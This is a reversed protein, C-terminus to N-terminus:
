AKRADFYALVAPWDHVRTVNRPLEAMTQNWGYNGFLLTSIGLDAAALCHKLQDDIVYSVNNQAFLDAKTRLMMESRVPEDFIGAFKIDEFLGPYHAAIWDRTLREISRRRSTIALLRYDVKLHTLVPLAEDNHRYHAIAGSAHLEVARREVEEIDVKWVKAWHEDYDEPKLNMGWRENSFAVFGEANAALVDDIDIAITERRM